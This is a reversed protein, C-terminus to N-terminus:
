LPPGSQKRIAIDCFMYKELAFGCVRWDEGVILENVAQVVGYYEGNLHDFMVYDNFVIIGDDTLKTKAVTADQKVGQYSHDGDVYILNFFKDPYKALNTSSMGVETLVQAGRDAFRAKYYDLHTMNDFLIGSKIEKGWPGWGLVPWEHLRFIDFAVFKKPQLENLLYESFEGEAVGIEAIVGGELSRM